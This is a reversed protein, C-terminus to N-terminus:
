GKIRVLDINVVAMTEPDDEGVREYVKKIVQLLDEKLVALNKESISFPATFMLEDAPLDDARRISYMRWNSYHRPLFPSGQELFTRQTGPYFKNDKSEVLSTSVLFDLINQAKDRSLRFESCIQEFTKGDQLSCFIRIASYMWSSYFVAREQDTLSRAEPTRNKIETAQKILLLLKNEFYKKLAQTGSRSHEVLLLFYDKEIASLGMYDTLQEAQELSLDRRESLVQSILTPNVSLHNAIKNVQGRGAFAQAKIWEKVFTVYVEHSFISM